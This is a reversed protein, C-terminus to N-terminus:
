IAINSQDLLYCHGSIFDVNSKSYTNFKNLWSSVAVLSLLLVKSENLAIKDGGIKKDV